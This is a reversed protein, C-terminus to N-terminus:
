RIFGEAIEDVVGLKMAEDTTMWYDDKQIESYFEESIKTKELVVEKLQKLERKYFSAFNAFQGSTGASSTSGEHFLFSAHKYAIRKHAAIFTFFGGSYVAGTAIAWVPTKSMAISDIMMFTDILYGGNSNIYLKIPERKEVPIQHKEDYKNWFRILGDVTDGVGDGIDGLFIERNLSFDLNVYDTFSAKETLKEKLGEALVDLVEDDLEIGDFDVKRKKTNIM